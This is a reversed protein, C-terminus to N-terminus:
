VVVAERELYSFRRLNYCLNVLGIWVRARGQGICRMYGGKMDNRLSGFVHEVRCRVRSYTRNLVRQHDSLPTGRRAKHNLCPYLGMGVVTAISDRSRYASDAWIRRDGEPRVGLLVEFVQSDHVNAPTVDWNVILRTGEDVAIHNKYGFRSVGNKRVWRGDRDKQRLKDPNDEWEEPVGGERVRANEERTNRPRPVDTLSSDVIQGGTNLDYGRHELQDLFLDFLEEICGAKELMDRYKWLTKQDPVRSREEIGAFYQFSWRELLNGQLEKDSLNNMVGLLISRFILLYDWSRRGRGATRPSGWVKELLPRFSEWDVQKGIMELDNFERLARLHEDDELLHRNPM